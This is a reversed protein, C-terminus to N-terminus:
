AFVYELRENYIFRMEDPADFDLDGTVSICHEEGDKTFVDPMVAQNQRAASLFALLQQKEVPDAFGLDVKHGTHKERLRASLHGHENRYEEIYCKISKTTM